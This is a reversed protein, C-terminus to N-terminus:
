DAVANGSIDAGSHSPDVDRMVEDEEECAACKRQVTPSSGGSAPTVADNSPSGMVADAVRDAEVEYRDNPDSVSLKAQM